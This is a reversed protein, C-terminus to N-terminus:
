FPIQEPTAPTQKQPLTPQATPAPANDAWVTKGNGLYLRNAKATREEPTQTQWASVNHDYQDPEDAVSITLDLYTGKKGQILRAKDIKSVNISLSILQSM